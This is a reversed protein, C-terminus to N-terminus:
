IFVGAAMYTERHSPRMVSRIVERPRQMHMEGPDAWCYVVAPCWDVPMVSSTSKPGLRANALGAAAQPPSSLKANVLEIMWNPRMSLCWCSPPMRVRFAATNIAINPDQSPPPSSPYTAPLTPTPPTDHKGPGAPPHLPTLSWTHTQCPKWNQKVSKKESKM